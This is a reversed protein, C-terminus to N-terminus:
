TQEPFLDLYRNILSSSSSTIDEIYSVEGGIEAVAQEEQLLEPTPKGKFEAGKAFVNPGILRIAESATPWRNVAVLDVCDLAALAEARLSETFAPRHPGKNVYQDQTVTVVLMDGLQRARELYRIHGIHLLDFVGHCHVVRDAKRANRWQSVSRALDELSRTKDSSTM